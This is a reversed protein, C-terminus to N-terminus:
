YISWVSVVLRLIPVLSQALRFTAYRNSLRSHFIQLLVENLENPKKAPVLADFDYDFGLISINIISNQFAQSNHSAGAKGIIESTM